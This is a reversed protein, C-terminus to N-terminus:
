REFEFDDRELDKSKEAAKEIQKKIELRKTQEQELREREKAQRKVKEEREMIGLEKQRQELEVRKLRQEMEDMKLLQFREKEIWAVLKVAEQYSLFQPMRVKSHKRLFAIQEPTTLREAKLLSVVGRMFGM